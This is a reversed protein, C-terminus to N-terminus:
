LSVNKIKNNLKQIEIALKNKTLVKEPGHYLDL